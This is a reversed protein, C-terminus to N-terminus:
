ETEDEITILYDEVAERFSHELAERSPAEYTVLDDIDLIKGHYTGNNRTHQISGSHGKYLLVEEPTM